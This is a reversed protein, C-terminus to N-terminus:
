AYRLIFETEDCGSTSRVDGCRPNSDFNMSRFTVASSPPDTYAPLLAPTSSLTCITLSSPGRLHVDDGARRTLTKTSVNDPLVHFPIM